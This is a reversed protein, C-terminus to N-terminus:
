ESKAGGIEFGKAKTTGDQERSMSASHKLALPFVSFLNNRLHRWLISIQLIANENQDYMKLVIPVGVDSNEEYSLWRAFTELDSRVLAGDKTHIMIQIETGMGLTSYALEKMFLDREETNKIPRNSAIMEDLHKRIREQASYVAEFTARLVSM